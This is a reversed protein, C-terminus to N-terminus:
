ASTRSWRRHLPDKSLARNSHRRGKSIGSPPFLYAEVHDLLDTLLSRDSRARRLSVSVSSVKEHGESDKRPDSPEPALATPLVSSAERSCIDSQLNTYTPRRPPQLWAIYSTIAPMAAAMGAPSTTLCDRAEARMRDTIFPSDPVIHAPDPCLFSARVERKQVDPTQAPQQGPRRDVCGVSRLHPLPELRPNSRSVAAFVSGQPAVGPSLNETASPAHEDFSPEM